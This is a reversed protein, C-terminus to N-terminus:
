TRQRGLAMIAVMEGITAMIATAATAAIAMAAPDVAEPGRAFRAKLQAQSVAPVCTPIESPISSGLSPVPQM